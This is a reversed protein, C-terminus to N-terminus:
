RQGAWPTPVGKPVRLAIQLSELVAELNETWSATAKIDLKLLPYLPHPAAVTFGRAVLFDMTPMPAEEAKEVTGYAMLMREGRTALDRLALGVLLSGLGISRAEPRTHICSLLVVDDPPRGAPMYATQPFYRAPAYKVYGLVEGDEYAIRGFDGWEDAVDRRWRELMPADVSCCDHPCSMERRTPSEWYACSACPGALERARKPTLPRFRRAM